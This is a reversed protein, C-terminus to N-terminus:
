FHTLQHATQHANNNKACDKAYRLVKLKNSFKLYDIMEKIKKM